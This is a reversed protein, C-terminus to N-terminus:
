AIILSTAILNDELAGIFFVSVVVVVPTLTLHKSSRTCSHTLLYLVPVSHGDSVQVRNIKAALTTRDCSVLREMVMSDQLVRDVSPVKSLITVNFVM